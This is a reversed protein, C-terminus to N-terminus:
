KAPVIRFPVLESEAWREPSMEADVRWLYTAGVVLQPAASAALSTDRTESTWLLADVSYLRVRYRAAKPVASWVFRDVRSVTSFPALATPTQANATVTPAGLLTPSGPRDESSPRVILLVVAAAALAGLPLTWRMRRAGVSLTKPQDAATERSLASIAAVERRCRACSALHAITRQRALDTLRSDIFETITLEDLCDPGARLSQEAREDLLEGAAERLQAVENQCTVCQRIHRALADDEVGVGAAYPVLSEHTPCSM